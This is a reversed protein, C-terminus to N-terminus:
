HNSNILGSWESVVCVCKKCNTCVYLFFMTINRIVQPRDDTTRKDNDDVSKIHSGILIMNWNQNANFWVNSFHYHLYLTTWETDAIEILFYLNSFAKLSLSLNIHAVVEM